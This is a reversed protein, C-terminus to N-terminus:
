KLLLLKKTDHYDGAVLRCFYVGSPLNAAYLQVFHDGASQRDHVLTEVERGLADFVKLSVFISKPLRYNIRTSPNFPNPYNQFLAYSRPTTSNPSDYVGLINNGGEIMVMQVSRAPSSFKIENGIAYSNAPLSSPSDFPGWQYMTPGHGNIYVNPSYDGSDTGGTFSYIYYKQGVGRLKTDVSIIQNTTGKNIVILGTEGSFYRSAYCLVGADSSSASIAHDGYFKQLYRLYYFDAHPHFAYNADSGGYFMAGEGSLLLWQAGLGYNEKILECVLIVSQVGDINSICQDLDGTMNYETLAVPKSSANKAQIDQRVFAIDKEPGGVAGNLLGDVTSGGYYDHVIYFDAADGVEKFFDENWNKESIFTGSNALVQGGIYIPVWNEAAAARMSDAFVKFHKGYLEGTIITPQGDKNLTTDIMWGYEWPGANENGIEWFLTRGADYRVWDAALHAAQAVPDASTGYRAYAYNVTILGQTNTADRFQYYQDTSTQWGGAGTQGSFQMKPATKGNYKTGDYVSDPVDSPIGNWFFGDAWSGGPYRILTPALLNTNVILAPDLNSSGCWAAIANGFVYKSIAGITDGTITILVSAMDVPKQASVSPPIEAYKSEFDNLFCNPTGQGFTQCIGSFVLIIMIVIKNVKM